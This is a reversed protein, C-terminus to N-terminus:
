IYYGNPYHHVNGTELQVRAECPWNAQNEIPCKGAKHYREAARAIKNFMKDLIALEKKTLVQQNFPKHDKYINANPLQGISTRKRNTSYPHHKKHAESIM